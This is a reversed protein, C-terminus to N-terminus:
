TAESDYIARVKIGTQQEFEKLIPEAYVQDQAAYIVVEASPKARCSLLNIGLLVTVGILAVLWMPDFHILMRLFRKADQRWDYTDKNDVTM